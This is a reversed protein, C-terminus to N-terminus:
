FVEEMELRYGVNLFLDRYTRIVWPRMVEDDTGAESCANALLLHGGTATAGHLTLAMWSMEFFTYLSGLYYITDSMVILDWPGEAGVDYAMINAVRFDVQPRVVKRRAHELATPAIDLAVLRDTIRALQGTMCGGGCGIELGRGYSRGQLMAVQREY